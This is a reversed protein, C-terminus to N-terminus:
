AKVKRDLRPGQKGITEGQEVLWRRLTRWSCHYFQSAALAGHERYRTIADAPFVARPYSM